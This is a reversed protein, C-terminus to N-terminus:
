KVKIRVVQLNFACRPSLTGLYSGEHRPEEPNFIRREKQEKKGRSL